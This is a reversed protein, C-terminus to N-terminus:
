AGDEGGLEREGGPLPPPTLPRLHPVRVPDVSKSTRLAVRVGVRERSPLPLYCRSKRTVIGAPGPARRRLPQLRHHDPGPRGRAGGAALAVPVRVAAGRPDHAGLRGAAAPDRTGLFSLSAGTLIAFGIRITVEVVIPSLMNPFIEGFMVYLHREGRARAALVFETERLGLAASRVIRAIGPGNAVGIALLAHSASAGLATIILLALLLSPFSLMADVLRMILDDIRGGFYGAALGVPVGLALGLAVAGVGLSLASRGGVLTRSLLDRGYQDTGLLYRSTPPQLRELMHHETAPYPAIWPALAAALIALGLISSGIVLAAPMSGQRARPLLAPLARAEESGATM